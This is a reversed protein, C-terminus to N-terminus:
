GGAGTSAGGGFSWGATSRRGRWNNWAKATSRAASRLRSLMDVYPGKAGAVGSEVGVGNSVDRLGRTSPDGRCSRRGRRTSRRRRLREGLERRTEGRTGNAAGRRGCRGGRRSREVVERGPRRRIAAPTKPAERRRQREMTEASPADLTTTPPPALAGGRDVVGGGRAGDGGGRFGPVRASSEVRLALGPIRFAFRRLNLARRAPKSRRARSSSARRTRGPAALSAALAAGGRAWREERECEDRASGGAAVTADRAGEDAIDEDAIDEGAGDEDRRARRRRSPPPTDVPSSFDTLKRRANARPPSNRRPPRRPRRRERGTGDEGGDARARTRRRGERPRGRNPKRERRERRRRTRRTERPHSRQADRGDRVRPRRPVGRLPFQHVYEQSPSPSADSASSTASSRPSRRRRPSTWRTSSIRVVM